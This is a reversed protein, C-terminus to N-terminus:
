MYAFIVSAVNVDFHKALERSLMPEFHLKTKELDETLMKKQRATLTKFVNHIGPVLRQSETLIHYYYEPNFVMMKNWFSHITQKPQITTM